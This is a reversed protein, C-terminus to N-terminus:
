AKSEERPISKVALALMVLSVGNFLMDIGVFLGIVWMGSLPWQQWIMLGLMLDIAGHLLLWFRNQFRVSVATAIRFAGEFILFMAILLTLTVATAAPHAVILFGVVAYLIGTLLDIFFGGWNKLTFAHLGEFIGGVILLWGILEMTILTVFLSSGLAVFGLVTLLLGLILVWMWRARLQQVGVLHLSSMTLSNTPTM